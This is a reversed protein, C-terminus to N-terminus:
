SREEKNMKYKLYSIYSKLAKGAKDANKWKAIWKYVDDQKQLLHIADLMIEERFQLHFPALPDVINGLDRRVPGIQLRLWGGLFDAGWYEGWRSYEHPLDSSSLFLNNNIDM